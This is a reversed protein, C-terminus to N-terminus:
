RQFDPRDRMVDDIFAEVERATPREISKRGLWDKVTGSKKGDEIEWVAIVRNAQADLLIRQYFGKTPTNGPSNFAVEAYCRNTRSDYNSGQSRESRGTPENLISDALEACKSRLEFIEAATSRPVAQPQSPESKNCGALLVLATLAIAKM